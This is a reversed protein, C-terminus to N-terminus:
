SFTPTYNFLGSQSISYNGKSTVFNYTGCAVPFGVEITGKPNLVKTSISIPAITVNDCVQYTYLLLIIDDGNNIITINSSTGYFELPGSQVIIISSIILWALGMYFLFIALKDVIELTYVNITFLQPLAREPQQELKHYENKFRFLSGLYELIQNKKYPIIIPARNLKFKIINEMSEPESLVHLLGITLMIMSILFSGIPVWIINSQWYSLAAFSAGLALFNLEILKIRLDDTRQIKDAFDKMENM